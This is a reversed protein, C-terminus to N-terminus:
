FDNAKFQNVRDYLLQSFVYQSIVHETIITSPFAEVSEWGPLIVLESVKHRLPHKAINSVLVVYPRAKSPLDTVLALFDRHSPNSASFLFVLDTNKIIHLTEMEQSAQIFHSPVSSLTLLFSFSQASLLSSGYGSSYVNDAKLIRQALSNIVKDPLAGGTQMIMNSLRRCCQENATGQISSEDSIASKRALGVAMSLRFDAFGSFGIKQCFRSLTSQAIKYRASIEMASGATFSYPDKKLIEYIEVERPTFNSKCQEIKDWINM